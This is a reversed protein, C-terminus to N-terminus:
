SVVISIRETPKIDKAEGRPKKVVLNLREKLKMAIIGALGRQHHGGVLVTIIASPRLVWTAWLFDMFSMYVHDMNGPM